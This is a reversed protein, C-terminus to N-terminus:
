PATLDVNLFEFQQDPETRYRDLYPSYTQVAIEQQDPYFTVVRLYGNGGYAEFQYNALMQYVQNGNDGTSVLTGTGDNLTHGSFVFSINEHLKVFNAWMEEGDNCAEPGTAGACLGYNHPNWLDGPGVLTDDSYMYNHTVIIVRRHPHNAVVQNAWDLVGNRPGFELAFV